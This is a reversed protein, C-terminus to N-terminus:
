TAEIQSTLTTILFIVLKLLLRVRCWTQEEIWFNHIIQTFTAGVGEIETDKVRNGDYDIILILAGQELLIKIQDNYFAMLTM